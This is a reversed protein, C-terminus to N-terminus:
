LRTEEPSVQKRRDCTGTQRIARCGSLRVASLLRRSWALTAAPLHLEIFQQNRRGATGMIEIAMWLYDEAFRADTRSINSPFSQIKPARRKGPSAGSPQIREPQQREPKPPLRPELSQRTDHRSVLDRYRGPNRIGAPTNESLIFM